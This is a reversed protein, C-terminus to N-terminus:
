KEIKKEIDHIDNDIDELLSKIIILDEQLVENKSNLNSISVLILIILVVIGLLGINVKMM